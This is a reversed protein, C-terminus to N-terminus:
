EDDYEVSYIEVQRRVFEICNDALSEPIVSTQL